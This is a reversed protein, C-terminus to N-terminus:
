IKNLCSSSTVIQSTVIQVAAQIFFLFINFIYLFISFDLFLYFIDFYILFYINLYFCIFVFLFLYFFIQFYFFYGEFLIYYIVVGVECTLDLDWNNVQLKM